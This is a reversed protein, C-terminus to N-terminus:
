REKHVLCHAAILPLLIATLTSRFYLLETSDLNLSALYHCKLVALGAGGQDSSGQNAAM